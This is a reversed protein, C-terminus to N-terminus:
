RERKDGPKKNDRWNYSLYFFSPKIRKKLNTSYLFISGVIGIVLVIIALGIYIKMNKSSFSVEALESATPKRGHTEEFQKIWEKKNM